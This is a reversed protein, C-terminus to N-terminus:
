RFHTCVLKLSACAFSEYKEKSAKIKRQFLHIFIFIYHLELYRKKMQFSQIFHLKRLPEFSEIYVLSKPDLPFKKGSVPVYATILHDHTDGQDCTYIKRKDNQTVANDHIIGSVQAEVSVSTCSDHQLM